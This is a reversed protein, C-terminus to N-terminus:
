MAMWSAYSGIHLLWALGHGRLPVTEHFVESVKIDPYDIHSIMAYYDALIEDNTVGPIEQYLSFLPIGSPHKAASYNSGHLLSCFSISFLAMICFPYYGPPTGRM